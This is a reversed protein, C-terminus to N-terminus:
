LFPNTAIPIILVGEIIVYIYYYYYTIVYIVVTAQFYISIIHNNLILNELIFYKLEKSCEWLHSSKM